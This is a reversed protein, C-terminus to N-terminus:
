LAITTRRDIARPRGKGGSLCEDVPQDVCDDSLRVLGLLCELCELRRDVGDDGVQEEPPRVRFAATGVRGRSMSEGDERPEGTAGLDGGAVDEFPRLFLNAADELLM